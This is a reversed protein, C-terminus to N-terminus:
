WDYRLQCFPCRDELGEAYVEIVTEGTETDRYSFVSVFPCEYEETLEEAKKSIDMLQKASYLEAYANFRIKAEM